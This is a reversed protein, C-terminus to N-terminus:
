LVVGLDRLVFPLAVAAVFLAAWLTARTITRM